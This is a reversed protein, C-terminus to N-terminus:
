ELPMSAGAKLPMLQALTSTDLLWEFWCSRGRHVNRLNPDIQCLSNKLHMPDIRSAFNCQAFLVLLDICEIFNELIQDTLQADVGRLGDLEDMQQKACFIDFSNAIVRGM